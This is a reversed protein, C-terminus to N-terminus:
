LKPLKNAALKAESQTDHSSGIQVGDLELVYSQPKVCGWYKPVIEYRGCKSDVFGGISRSWKISM